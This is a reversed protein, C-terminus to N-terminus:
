LSRPRPRDFWEGEPPLECFVGVIHESEACVQLPVLEEGAIRSPGLKAM